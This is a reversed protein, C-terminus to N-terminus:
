EVIVKKEAKLPDAKKKKAPPEKISIKGDEEIDGIPEAMASKRAEEVQKKARAVAEANLQARRNMKSSPNKGVYELRYYGDALREKAVNGPVMMPMQYEPKFNENYCYFMHEDSELSIGQKAFEDIVNQAKPMMLQRLETKM